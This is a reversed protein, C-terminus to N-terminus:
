TLEIGTNKEVELLNWLTDKETHEPCASYGPAPRIGQYKEALLDANGLTEDPVHKWLTTRVYKHLWEAFSEALRDALAELLIANYDDFEAKFQEIREKIGLGATVAFGGVWDQKGSDKPAIFDALCRNPVGKRHESQQRLHHSVISVASRDDKLIHVDDDIVYAPFIGAVGNATLWKEEIIKELMAQADAFLKKAETGKVPDNLIDPYRGKMEWAQFFPTWDLTDVLERIPFDRFVYLGSEDSASSNSNPVPEREAFETSEPLAPHPPEYTDWDIQFKNKRAAALTLFKEKRKNAHRARVEDYEEKLAAHLIERAKSDVFRAAVPVSRSADKVWMVPGDYAGDIKVATHARSTTAGGILLPQKM